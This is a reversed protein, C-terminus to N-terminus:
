SPFYKLITRSTFKFAEKFRDMVQNLFLRDRDHQIIKPLGFNAFM